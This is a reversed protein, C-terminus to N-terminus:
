NTEESEQYQGEALIEMERITLKEWAVANVAEEDVGSICNFEIDDKTLQDIEKKAEIALSRIVNESGASIFWSCLDDMLIRNYVYYVDHYRFIEHIDLLCRIALRKGGRLIYYVYNWAKISLEYNRHLPYSLSRRIGTIIAAKIISFSDSTDQLLLQQDLCCIQPTLKGISWASETTHSGETEIAEFMHAFLLNLITIYLRKSDSVLYEKRPINNQMQSQEQDSFEIPMAANKDDAKKYWKLYEKVLSPTYSLLEKIGNIELDDPEAYRRIMYESVYYEPDFKLDEKRLREKVRDNPSTHEPDDVENIDNGNSVSVGIVSDYSDEFGYKISLLGDSAEESIQEIEWNFAEGAASIKELDKKKSNDQENGIEQILPRQKDVNQQSIEDAGVLDGHRALLKTPVDLDEFFKGKELKPLQIHISEDQAQYKATAREDDVVEYPFRLRLYYPSLHFVFVNGEAVMELGAADFRITSIQVNIYIFDDDQTVSFKPTIM